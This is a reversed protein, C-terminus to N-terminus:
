EIGSIETAARPTQLHGRTGIETFRCLVQGYGFAGHEGTQKLARAEEIGVPMRLAGLFAQSIHEAAHLLVADDGGLVLILRQCRRWLEDSELPPAAVAAQMKNVEQAALRFRVTDGAQGSLGIRHM